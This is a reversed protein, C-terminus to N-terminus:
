YLVISPEHPTIYRISYLPTTVRAAQKKQRRHRDPGGVSSVFGIM